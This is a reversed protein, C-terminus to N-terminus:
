IGKLSHFLQGMPPNKPENIYHGKNDWKIKQILDYSAQHKGSHGNSLQCQLNGLCFGKDTSSQCRNEKTTEKEIRKNSAIVKKLIFAMMAIYLIFIIIKDM